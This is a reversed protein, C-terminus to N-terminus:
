SAGDAPAHWVSAATRGDAVAQLRAAAARPDDAVLAARHEFHTRGITTTTCIAALRDRDAAAVVPAYAAAASRLAAATRASIVVLERGSTAAGLGQSPASELVVHANTGGFGFGSVGAFLTAGSADWASAATVVHLPLTPWPILPNPTHFHQQPPLTRHQMALVVKIVGAVGAAAEAHGINAKVSGISLPTERGAFVNGLAAVEIPDGLAPGTGHAEVYWSARPSVGADKL